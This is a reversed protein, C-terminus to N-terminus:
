QPRPVDFIANGCRLAHPVRGIPYAFILRRYNDQGPAYTETREDMVFFFNGVISPVVFRDDLDLSCSDYGFVRPVRADNRVHIFAWLWHDGDPPVAWTPTGDLQPNTGNVLRTLDFTWDDASKIVDGKIVYSVCGTGALALTVLLSAARARFRAVRGVGESARGMM